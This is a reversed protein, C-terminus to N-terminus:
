AFFSVRRQNAPDHEFSTSNEEPPQEDGLSLTDEGSEEDELGRALAQHSPSYTEDQEQRRFEIDFVGTLDPASAPPKVMPIPRIGIIPGIGM